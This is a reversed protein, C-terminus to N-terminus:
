ISHVRTRNRFLIVACGLITVISVAAVLLPVTFDQNQLSAPNEAIPEPSQLAAVNDGNGATAFAKPEPNESAVRQDMATATVAGANLLPPASGEGPNIQTSSLWAQAAPLLMVLSALFVVTSISLIIWVRLEKPAVIESGKKTLEYYKWKHGDDIKKVLSAGELTELHEKVGSVSMGSENALESLTKRREKLSKLIRVRSDVALAEFSKRDLTVKEEEM